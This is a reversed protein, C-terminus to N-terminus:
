SPAAVVSSDRMAGLSDTALARLQVVADAHRDGAGDSRLSASLAEAASGLRELGVSSAVGAVRHAVQASTEIDNQNWAAEFAELQKM